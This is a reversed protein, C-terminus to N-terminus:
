TCDGIKKAYELSWPAVNLAGVLMERSPEEADLARERRVDDSRCSAQMRTEGSFM